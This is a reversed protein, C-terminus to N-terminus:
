NKPIVSITGPLAESWYIASEKVTLISPTNLGRALITVAGGERSVRAISGEGNNVTWYVHSRDVGLAFPDVQGTALVKVEGGNVSATAVTGGRSTTWYLKGSDLVM